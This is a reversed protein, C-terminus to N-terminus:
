YFRYHRLAPGLYWGEVAHPAWTGRVSLKEHVLVRTGPPALPTSNYDFAGHVQAWASLQPNIRSGRLLNLMILAQTLLRDWLKLPFNPNTSCLGTIFHNKFTRIAREAANLRHIHPPALRFNVHVSSLHQQLASLLNDTRASM